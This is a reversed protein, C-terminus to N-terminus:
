IDVSFNVGNSHPNSGDEEARIGNERRNKMRATMKRIKSISIARSMGVGRKVNDGWTIIVPLRNIM